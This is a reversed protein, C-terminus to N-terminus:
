IKYCKEFDKENNKLAINSRIALPSDIFKTFDICLHSFNNPKLVTETYLKIFPAVKEEPLFSKAYLSVSKINRISLLVSYNANAVIQRFANDNPYLAQSIFITHIGLPRSRIFTEAALKLLRKNYLIDDFIVLSQRGPTFDELPNFDDDRRVNLGSIGELNSGIVVIDDLKLKYKKLLEVAFYSKGSGSLAIITMRLPKHFINLDDENVVTYM